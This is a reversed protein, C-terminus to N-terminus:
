CWLEPLPSLIVATVDSLRLEGLMVPPTLRGELMVTELTSGSIEM